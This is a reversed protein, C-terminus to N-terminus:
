ILINSAGPKYIEHVRAHEFVFNSIKHTPNPLANYLFFTYFLLYIRCHPLWVTIINNCCDIYDECCKYKRLSLKSWAKSLINCLHFTNLSLLNRLFSASPSSSRREINIRVNELYSVLSTELGYIEM